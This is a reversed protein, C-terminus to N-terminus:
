TRRKTVKGETAADGRIIERLESISMLRGRHLMRHCNACVVELDSLATARERKAGGLPNVHHVECFGDGRPGYIASFDFGCVACALKGYERLVQERKAVVLRRDREAVLHQRLRLRGETAELLDPDPVSVSVTGALLDRLADAIEVPPTTYSRPYRLWKWDPFREVLQAESITPDLMTVDRIQGGFRFTGGFEAGPSPEDVVVGSAVIGRSWVFVLADDYARASKPLIWPANTGTREAERLLAVDDEASGVLVHLAPPERVSPKGHMRARRGPRAADALAELHPVYEDGLPQVGLSFNSLSQRLAPFWALDNLRVTEHFTQGEKGRIIHEDDDDEVHDVVFWGGLSYQRPNGEGTIAWVRAGRLHRVPKRTVFSFPQEAESYAYGMKEANHYAVYNRM